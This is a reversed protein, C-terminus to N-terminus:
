SQLGPTSGAREQVNLRSEVVGVGDVSEVAALLGDVEDALVPGRLTVRGQYVDVLISGPSTVAHGIESRVRAELVADDAGGSRLAGRAEAAAGKARNRLDEARDAASEGFDELEHGAHVFQDRLLARRRAGRDPDLLYMAGAGALAAFLFSTKSM